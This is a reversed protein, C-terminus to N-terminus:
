VDVEVEKMKAALPGWTMMPLFTISKMLAMWFMRQSFLFRPGMRPTLTLALITKFAQQHFRLARQPVRHWRSEPVLLRRTAWISTQLSSLTNRNKRRRAPESVEVHPGKSTVLINLITDGDAIRHEPRFFVWHPCARALAQAFEDSTMIWFRFHGEDVSDAFALRSTTHMIRLTLPFLQPAFTLQSDDGGVLLGCRAFFQAVPSGVHHVLLASCVFM